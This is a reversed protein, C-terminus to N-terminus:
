SRRRRSSRPEGLGGLTTRVSRQEPRTGWRVAAVPTDAALGGEM